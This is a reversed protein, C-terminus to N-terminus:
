KFELHCRCNGLCERTGPPPLTGIPVWGRGALDRCQDCHDALGLINREQTFGAQKATNRRGQEYSTTATGIYQQAYLVVQLRSYEGKKVKRAFDKLYDYQTLLTKFALDDWQKQTIKNRGGSGLAYLDVHTLRIIAQMERVWQNWTIDHDALRNTLKVVEAQQAAIFEDRKEVMQSQGIIRGNPGQYRQLKANWAWVKIPM